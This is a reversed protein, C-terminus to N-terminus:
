KKNCSYAIAYPEGWCKLLSNVVNLNPKQGDFTPGKEILERYKMFTEIDNNLFAVTSYVYANWLIPTNAPEDKDICSLFRQQANKYDNLMGYMQGAHWIMVREQWPQLNIKHQIVYEELINAALQYCKKDAYLRWGGKLDQDFTEYPLLLLKQKEQQSIDCPSAAFLLVGLFYVPFLFKISKIFNM